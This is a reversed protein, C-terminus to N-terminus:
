GDELEGMFCKGSCFIYTVRTPKQNETLSSFFCTDPDDLIKRCANSDCWANEVKKELGLVELASLNSAMESLTYANVGECTLM